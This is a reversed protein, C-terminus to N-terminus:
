PAAGLRRVEGAIDDALAGPHPEPIVQSWPRIAISAFVVGSAAYPESAVFADAAARDDTALVIVMTEPMGDARRAPGGFLILDRHQAIYELHRLRLAKLHPLADEAIECTLMMM